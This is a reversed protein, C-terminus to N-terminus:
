KTESIHKYFDTSEYRGKFSSEPVLWSYRKSDFSFIEKHFYDRIQNSINDQIRGIDNASIVGIGIMKDPNKRIYIEMNKILLSLFRLEKYLDENVWFQNKKCVEGYRLYWAYFKEYSIFIEPCTLIFEGSKSEYKDITSHKTLDTVVDLIEKYANIHEEILIESINLKRERNKLIWQTLISLISAIILGLLTFLGSQYKDIFKIM